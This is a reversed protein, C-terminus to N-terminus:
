ANQAGKLSGCHIQSAQNIFRLWGDFPLIGWVCQRSVKIILHCPLAFVSSKQRIRSFFLANKM